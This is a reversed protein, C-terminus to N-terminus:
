NMNYNSSPFCNETSQTFIDGSPYWHCWRARSKSVGDRGRVGHTVAAGGWMKGEKRGTMFGYAHDGVGDKELSDSGAYIEGRIMLDHIQDAQKNNLTIDELIAPYRTPYQFNYGFIPTFSPGFLAANAYEYKGM